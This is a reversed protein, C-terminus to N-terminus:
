TILASTVTVTLDGDSFGPSVYYYEYQEYGWIICRNDATKFYAPMKNM